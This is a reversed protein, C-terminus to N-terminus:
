RSGGIASSQGAPLPPPEPILGDPALLILAGAANARGIGDVLREVIWSRWDQFQQDRAIADDDAVEATVTLLPNIIKLSVHLRSVLATLRAQRFANWEDPFEATYGFPDIAEIDDLRARESTSLRPRAAARFLDLAHRSYDFDNGPFRVADLYVGDVAYRRVTAVVAKAVYEATDPDLPSLYLGDVRDRNTRTWRSLRGLYAPGRPDLTLMESAIARPVMLWEPHQYVVHTSAAPIADSPAVRNVDIWAHVRLGRERAAKIFERPGDFGPLPDASSVPIPVFVTNFAGAHVATLGRRIGDPTELHARTVWYGRIPADSAPATIVLTGALWVGILGILAVSLIRASPPRRRVHSVCGLM